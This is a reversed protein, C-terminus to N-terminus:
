AKHGRRQRGSCPRQALDHRVLDIVGVEVKLVAAGLAPTELLSDDLGATEADVFANPHAGEGALLGSKGIGVVDTRWASLSAAAATRAIAAAPCCCLTGASFFVCRCAREVHRVVRQCREVCGALDLQEFPEFRMARASSLRTVCTM